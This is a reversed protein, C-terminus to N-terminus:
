KGDPSLNFGPSFGADIQGLRVYTDGDFLDVRADIENFFAEDLVYIRHPSDPPMATVTLREAPLPPPVSTAAPAPAATPAAAFLPTCAALSLLAARIIMRNMLIGMCRGGSIGAITSRSSAIPLAHSQRQLLNPMDASYEITCGGGRTKRRPMRFM